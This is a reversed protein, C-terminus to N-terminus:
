KKKPTAPPTASRKLTVALEGNAKAPQKRFLVDVDLKITALANVVQGTEPAAILTGSVTGGVNGESGRQGRLSGEVHIVAEKQGARDSLGLYTYKLNAQAPLALLIPGVEMLRQTKWSQLPQLKDGSLPAAMVSLSQLVQDSMESILGRTEPPVRSLDAEARSQNGDGDMEVNLSLKQVFDDFV